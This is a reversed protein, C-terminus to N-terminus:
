IGLSGIQPSFVCGRLFRMICFAPNFELVFLDSATNSFHQVSLRDAALLACSPSVVNPRHLIKWFELPAHECLLDTRTERRISTKWDNVNEKLM